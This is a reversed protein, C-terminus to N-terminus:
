IPERVDDYPFILTTKVSATNVPHNRLVKKHRFVEDPTKVHFSSVSINRFM